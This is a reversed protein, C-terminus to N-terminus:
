GHAVDLRFLSYGNFIHRTFAFCDQLLAAASDVLALHRPHSLLLLQSHTSSGKSSPTISVIMLAVELEHADDTENGNELRYTYWYAFPHDSGRALCM